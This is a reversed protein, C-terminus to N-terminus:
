TSSARVADEVGKRICDLIDAGPTDTASTLAKWVARSVGETIALQIMGPSIEFAGKVGDAISAYIHETDIRDLVNM